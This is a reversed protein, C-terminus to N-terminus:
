AISRGALWALGARLSLRTPRDDEPQAGAPVRLIASASVAHRRRWLIRDIVLGLALVLTLIAALLMVGGYSALTAGEDKWIGSDEATWPRFYRPDLGLRDGGPLASSGMLNLVLLALPTLLYAGVRLRSTPIFRGALAVLCFAIWLWGAILTTGMPVTVERPVNQHAHVTGDPQLEALYHPVPGGLGWHALQILNWAPRGTSYPNAYSAPFVLQLVLPFLSSALLMGLFVCAPHFSTERRIANANSGGASALWSDDASWVRCLFVGSGVFAAIMPLQAFWFDHVWNPHLLGSALAGLAGSVWLLYLLRTGRRVAIPAMENAHWAHLGAALVAFCMCLALPVFLLVFLDLVM